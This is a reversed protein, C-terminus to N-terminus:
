VTELRISTVFAGLENPARRDLLEELARPSLDAALAIIARATTAVDDNADDVVRRAFAGLWLLRDAGLRFRAYDSRAFPRTADRHAAKAMKELEALDARRARRASAAAMKTLGVDSYPFFSFTGTQASLREALIGMWVRAAAELAIKQAEELRSLLLEATRTAWRGPFAGECRRVIDGLFSEGIEVTWWGVMRAMLAREIGDMGASDRRPQEAEARLSQVWGAVVLLREDNNMPEVLELAREPTIRIEERTSSIAEGIAAGALARVFPTGSGLCARRLEDTESLVLSPSMHTVATVFIAGIRAAAKSGPVEKAATKALCDIACVLETPANYVLFQLAYDVAWPVGAYRHYHEAYKVASKSASPFEEAFSSMIELADRSPVLDAIGIPLPAGLVAESLWRGLHPAVRGPARTAVLRFVKYPDARPEAAALAAVLEFWCSLTEEPLCSVLAEIADDVNRTPPPAVRVQAPKLSDVKFDYLLSTATAKSRLMEAYDDVVPTLVDPPIPIVLLPYSVTAGDLSNSLHYGRVIKGGADYALLVRDHFPREGCLARVRFRLGQLPIRLGELVETLRTRVAAERDRASEGDEADNRRLATVVEFMCTSNEVRALLELGWAGIYPDFLVIASVGGMATLTERLWTAFSLREQAPFFRAGSAPLQTADVWARADRAATVFAADAEGITTSMAVSPRAISAMTTAAARHHRDNAWRTLWESQLSLTPGLMQGTLGIRRISSLTDAFLLARNEGAWVQFTTAHPGDPTPSFEVRTGSAGATVMQLEDALILGDGHQACRICLSTGEPVDVDVTPHPNFAVRVRSSEDPQASPFLFVEIDGLREADHKTFAFGTDHELARLVVDLRGGLAADLAAGFESKNPHILSTAVAPVEPNPSRRARIYSADHASANPRLTWPTPVHASLGAADTSLRLHGFPLSEPLPVTARTAAEGLSAGTSLEQLITRIASFSAGSTLRLLGSNAPPKVDAKV